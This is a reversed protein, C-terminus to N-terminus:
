HVNCNLQNQLAAAPCNLANEGAHQVTSSRQIPLEAGPKSAGLTISEHKWYAFIIGPGEKFNKRFYFM